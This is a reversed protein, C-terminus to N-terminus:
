QSTAGSTSRTPRTFPSRCMWNRLPILFRATTNTTSPGACGNTGFHPSAKWRRSATTVARGDPEQGTRLTAAMARHSKRSTTSRAASFSFAIPSSASATSPSNSTIPAQPFFNGIINVHTHGAQELLRNYHAVPEVGLYHSHADIVRSVKWKLTDM